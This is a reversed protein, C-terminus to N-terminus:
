ISTQERALKLRLREGFKMSVEWRLLSIPVGLDAPFAEKLTSCLQRRVSGDGMGM